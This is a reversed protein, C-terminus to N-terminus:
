SDRPLQWIASYSAYGFSMERIDGEESQVTIYDTIKQVTDVSKLGRGKGQDSRIRIIKWFTNPRLRGKYLLQM